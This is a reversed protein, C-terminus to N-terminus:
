RGLAHRIAAGFGDPLLIRDASMFRADLWWAASDRAKAEELRKAVLRKVAELAARAEERTEGMVPRWTAENFQLAEIKAAYPDLRSIVDRRVSTAWDVQRVTGRLEPLSTGVVPVPAVVPVQSATDSIIRKNIQAQIANQVARDQSAGLLNTELDVWGDHRNEIWWKANTSQQLKALRERASAKLADLAAQAEERTEGMMPKWDDPVRQEELERYLAEIKPLKKRRVDDGYAIQRDSVGELDAWVAPGTEVAPPAPPPPAVVVPPPKREYGAYDPLVVIFTCRCHPHLTATEVEVGNPAKWKGDFPVRVHDLAACNPCVREDEATKWQKYIGEKPLAGAEQAQQVATQSASNFAFSLETRAIREARIRQLRNTTRAVAAEVQLPSVGDAELAARQAAVRGMEQSTLGVIGRLFKATERPALPRGVIYKDFVARVGQLQDDALNTILEGARTNVWEQLIKGTPVWATPTAGAGQLAAIYPGAGAAAGVVMFRRAQALNAAYTDRWAEARSADWEGRLMAQVLNSYTPTETAGERAAHLFRIFDGETHMLLNDMRGDMQSPFSPLIRQPEVRTPARDKTSLALM